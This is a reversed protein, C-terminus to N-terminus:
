PTIVIHAYIVESRLIALKLDVTELAKDQWRLNWYDVDPWQTAVLLRGRHDLHGRLHGCRAAIWSDKMDDVVPHM